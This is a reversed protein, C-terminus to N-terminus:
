PAETLHATEGSDEKMFGPHLNDGNAILMHAKKVAPPDVESCKVVANLLCSPDKSEVTDVFENPRVGEQVEGQVEENRRGAFTHDGASLTSRM